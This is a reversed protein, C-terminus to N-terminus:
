STGDLPLTPKAGQKISRAVATAHTGVSFIGSLGYSFSPHGRGHRLHLTPLSRDNVSSTLTRASTWVSSWFCMGKVTCTRGPRVRLCRRGKVGRGSLPGTHLHTGVIAHPSPHHM